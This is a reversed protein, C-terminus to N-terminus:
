GGRTVIHIVAALLARKEQWSGIRYAENIPMLAEMMVNVKSDDITRKADECMTTLAQWHVRMEKEEEMGVHPPFKSIAVSTEEGSRTVELEFITGIGYPGHLSKKYWGEKKNEDLYVYYLKRPDGSPSRRGIYTWNEKKAKSSDM